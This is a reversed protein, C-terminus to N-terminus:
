KAKEGRGHPHDALITSSLLSKGSKGVGTPIIRSLTTSSGSTLAKGWARPSSGDYEIVTIMNIEKEGRGHPHDARSEHRMFQCFSKGVGTPIIREHRHGPVVGLVKGWARPSSGSAHIPQRCLVIRKGVGTPIIRVHGPIGDPPDVKGWARPSSGGNRFCGSSMSRKEGRGHPHDACRPACHACWPSKGVGTPIIRIKHHKTNICFDKGWARPSSGISARTKSPMLSKEGRGHPHDSQEPSRGRIVM